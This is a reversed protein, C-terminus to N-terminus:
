LGPTHPHSSAINKVIVDNVKSCRAKEFVWFHPCISFFFAIDTKRLHPHIYCYGGNDARSDSCAPLNGSHSDEPSRAASGTSGTRPHTVTVTTPASVCNPFTCLSAPFNLHSNWSINKVRLITWKYKSSVTCDYIDDMLQVFLDCLM